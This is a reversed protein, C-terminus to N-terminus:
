IIMYGLIKECIQIKGACKGNSKSKMDSATSQLFQSLEKINIEDENLDVLHKYASEGFADILGQM